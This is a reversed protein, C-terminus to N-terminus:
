YVNSYQFEVRRYQKILKTINERIPGAQSPTYRFCASTCAASASREGSFSWGYAFDVWEAFDGYIKFGYHLKSARRSKSDGEHSFAGDEVMLAHPATFTNECVM